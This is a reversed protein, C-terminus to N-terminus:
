AIPFFASTSCALGSILAGVSAMTLIVRVVIHPVSKMNELAIQGAALRAADQAVFADANDVLNAGGDRYELGAVMHQNGADAGASFADIAALLHIRMARGAAPNQAVSDVPSLRFEDANGMCVHAEIGNRVARVFLRQHHEAIDQRGAEFAAHEIALDLGSASDGDDPRPRDPKRCEQCRLEIGRGLDDHDIQVVIAQFDGLPEAGGRGDVAAIALSRFGDHLHGALAADIGGDFCHANGAVNSNHSFITVAPPWM